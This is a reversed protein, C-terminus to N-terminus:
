VVRSRTAWSLLPSDYTVFASVCLARVLPWRGAGEARGWPLASIPKISCSM